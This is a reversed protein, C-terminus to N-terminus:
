GRQHRVNGFVQDAIKKQADPMAGYLTDFSTILNKVGDAHAQAFKEYSNLDDVATMPQGTTANRDEILKQMAAANDRMAQAVATWSAEEAPTIKLQRHLSTIRQEVTEPQSSTARAAATRPPTRAPATAATSPPTTPAPPTSNTQASAALPAALMSAGLLAAIAISRPGVQRTAPQSVATRNANASM